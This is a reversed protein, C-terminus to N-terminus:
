FGAEKLGNKRMEENFKVIAAARGIKGHTENKIFEKFNLFALSAYQEATVISSYQEGDSKQITFKFPKEYSLTAKGFEFKIELSRDHIPWYKGVEFIFHSTGIPTLFNGEMRAYTEGEDPQQLPRFTGLLMTNEYKDLTVHPNIVEATALGIDYLPGFLHSSLDRIMGGQRGDLLWARHDATGASGSGELLKGKINKVCGLKKTFPILSLSGSYQLYKRRSDTKAIANAATLFGLAKGEVCYEAAYILKPFKAAIALFEELDYLNTVVPKEVYVPIGLSAFFKTYWLHSNNPTMVIAAPNKPLSLSVNRTLDTLNGNQAQIYIAQEKKLIDQTLPHLKEKPVIDIIAYIRMELDPDKSQTVPYLNKYTGEGGGAVILNIM